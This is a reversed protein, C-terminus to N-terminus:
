GAQGQGRGSVGRGYHAAIAHVLAGLTYETPMISVPISLRSAAEATVPGCVAVITQQLLDAVQDAGFTSAFNRVSAASTFTVVDIQRDLLMRYIDPDRDPDPEAALTRYAVVETVEAGADRLAEALRERGVDARPLLFRTQQLPGANSLAQVVGEARFDTPVLDAKLGYASLRDRTSPGVACLKVGKLARADGGNRFLRQIFHDVANVSTLVVWEFGEVTDVARDLPEWQEPAAIRTMPAEITDAGLAALRDVLDAADERPRTVVIRRGFLPRDDFWRLHQRLAAVRGVVLIAPRKPRSATTLEVLEGLTGDITHQAPLTGEYIVAAPDSKPRGHALLADLIAPLQKTGAYCVITGKLKALSAWDIQPATQSEDEHGRVLTVTDGGGPYTLPVGAYGPIGIAAPIGPVVEFPVGQEHLFLAEEGGRDFVFPDGWKLRAVAKGERAKEALLYCIAEQATAEPAATGVDIREADHRAHRLLRPHVLRDYLVVDAEALCALGRASILGPDGPGAGILYVIPRFPM